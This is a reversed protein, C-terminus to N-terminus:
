PLEYSRDRALGVADMRWWVECLLHAIRAYASRRGINILWQRLIATDIMTDRWLALALRPHKDVVDLLRQHPIVALTTRGLAAASFDMQQMLLSRLDCFDGPILFAMIQRRGDPLLKYRCAFGEVILHVVSPRARDSVVDQHS